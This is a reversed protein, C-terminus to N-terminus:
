DAVCLQMSCMMVNMQKHRHLAGMTEKHTGDSNPLATEMDFINTATPQLAVTVIGLGLCM